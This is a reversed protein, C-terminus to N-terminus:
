PVCHTYIELQDIEGVFGPSKPCKGIILPNNRSELNGTLSKSFRRENVSGSFRNNKYTYIIDTWENDKIDRWVVLPKKTSDTNAKFAIKDNDCAIEVSTPGDPGCNSVISRRGSKCSGKDARVRMQISFTRGLYRNQFGWLSIYGNERFVATNNDTGAVNVQSFALGGNSVDQVIGGDFTLKFEPRCKPTSKKTTRPRTPKTPKIISRCKCESHNYVSGEPCTKLILSGRQLIWYADKRSEVELAPCGGTKRLSSSQLTECTESCTTDWICDGSDSTSQVFRHGSPCCTPASVGAFCKYFTGCGGHSTYNFYGKQCPDDFCTVDAPDSCRQANPDWFLGLPCHRAVAQMENGEPTCQIIKSCEGPHPIYMLDNSNWRLFQMCLVKLDYEIKTQSTKTTPLLTSRASRTTVIPTTTTRPNKRNSSVRTSSPRKNETKVFQMGRFLKSDVAGIFFPLHEMFNANIAIGRRAANTKVTKSKSPKSDDLKPKGNSTSMNITKYQNDSRSDSHAKETSSNYKNDTKTTVIPKIDSAVSVIKPSSPALTTLVPLNGATEFPKNAGQVTKPKLFRHKVGADENPFPSKMYNFLYPVEFLTTISNRSKPKNANSIEAPQPVNFSSRSRPTYTRVKFNSQFDQTQKQVNSNSSPEKKQKQVSVNTPFEQLQPQVNFQSSSQTKVNSHKIFDNSEGYSGKNELPLPAPTSSDKPFTMTFSSDIVIGQYPSKRPGFLTKLRNESKPKQVSVSEKPYNSPTHAVVPKQGSSDNKPRTAINAENQYQDSTKSTSYKNTAPLETSPNVSSPVFFDGLQRRLNTINKQLNDSILNTVPVIEYGTGKDETVKSETYTLTPSPAASNPLSDAIVLPTAHSSTSYSIGSDSTHGGTTSSSTPLINQTEGTHSHNQPKPSWLGFFVSPKVHDSLTSKQHAKSTPQISSIFSSMSSEKRVNNDVFFPLQTTQEPVSSVPYSASPISNLDKSKWQIDPHTRTTEAIKFPITKAPLTPPIAKASTPMMTSSTLPFTTTAITATTITTTPPPQSTTKITTSPPQTTATTTTTTPPQTTTTTAASSSSETQTTSETTIIIESNSQLGDKANGIETDIVIEKRNVTQSTETATEAAYIQNLNIPVGAQFYPRKLANMIEQLAPPIINRNKFIITHKPTTTKPSTTTPEQVKDSTKTKAVTNYAISTLTDITSGAAKSVSISPKEQSTSSSSVTSSSTTTSKAPTIDTKRQVEEKPLYQSRIISFANIDFIRMPQKESTKSTIVPELANNEETRKGQINAIKESTAMSENEIPILETGFNNPAQILFMDLSSVTGKASSANEKFSVPTTQLTNIRRRHSDIRGRAKVFERPAPQSPSTKVVSTSISSTVGNRNEKTIKTVGKGSYEGNETENKHSTKRHHGNDDDLRIKSMTVQGKGVQDTIPSLGPKEPRRWSMSIYDSSVDAVNDYGSTKVVDNSKTEIITIPEDTSHSIVQGNVMGSNSKTPQVSPVILSTASTQLWDRPMPGQSPNIYVVLNRTTSRMNTGTNPRRQPSVSPRMPSLSQRRTTLLTSSVKSQQRGTPLPSQMQWSIKERLPKSSPMVGMLPGTLQHQLPPRPKEPMTKGGIKGALLISPHIPTVQLGTPSLPSPLSAIRTKRSESLQLMGGMTQEPPQISQMSQTPDPRQLIRQGPTPIPRMHLNPPKPNPGQGPTPHHRIYQGNTTRPGMHQGTTPHPGIQPGISPSPGSHHRSPPQTGLRQRKIPESGTLQLPPPQLEIQQGITPGPGTQQTPTPMPGFNRGPTSKPVTYEIPPVMMGIPLGPHAMQKNSVNISTDIKTSQTSGPIGSPNNGQNNIYYSPIPSRNFGPTPLGVNMNTPQPNSQKVHKSNIHFGEIPQVSIEAPRPSPIPIKKIGLPNNVFHQTQPIPAYDMVSSVITQHRSHSSQLPPESRRTPSLQPMVSPLIHGNQPLRISMTSPLSNVYTESTTTTHLRNMGIGNENPTLTMMNGPSALAGKGWQGNSLSSVDANSLVGQESLTQGNRNSMGDSTVIGGFKRSNITHQFLPHVTNKKYYNSNEFQMNKNLNNSNYPVNNISSQKRNVINNNPKFMQRGSNGNLTDSQRQDQFHGNSSADEQQRAPHGNIMYIYEDTRRDSGNQGNGNSNRYNMNRQWQRSSRGNPTRIWVPVKDPKSVVASEVKLQPELTTMPPSYRPTTNIQVKQIEPKPLVPMSFSPSIKM